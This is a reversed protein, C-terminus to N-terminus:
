RLRFMKPNKQIKDSISEHVTKPRTLDAESKIMKIIKKQLDKSLKDLYMMFSDFVEDISEDNLTLQEALKRVVTESPGEKEPDLKSSEIKSIYSPDVDINSALEQQTLDKQLRRRKVEEGFERM